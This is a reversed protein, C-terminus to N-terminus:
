KNFSLNKNKRMLYANYLNKRFLDNKPELELAKELHYIAKDLMNNQAYITGLNEHAGAYKNNIELAKSYEEIAKKYMGKEDYVVGLNFHAEVHKPDYKIIEKYKLLAEDLMKKRYYLNGLNFLAQINEPQHQLVYKFEKIAQDFKGLSYFIEGISFRIYIDKSNSELLINLHKNADEFLSKALLIKIINVRAKLYNPSLKLAIKYHYLAKDLDGKIQYYYALNFHAQVLGPKIDIAKKFNESAKEFQGFEALIIGSNVYPEPFKPNLIIAHEFAELAKDKLGKDYFAKGMNFFSYYDKPNIRIAKKYMDIADDLKGVISLSVGLEAYGEYNNPYTKIQRKLLEIAKEHNGYKEYSIALEILGRRWDPSKNVTDTWLTIDNKWVTNRKITLYSFFLGISIIVILTLSRYRPINLFKSIVISLCISIGFLPLYMYREAFTNEGVGPIYLAPSLPIIFLFLGLFFLKDKKYSLILLTIYMLFVFISILGKIEYIQRIPHLVHFVNLNIPVFTKLIYEMLLPFINIIYQYTNLEPHSQYASFGKLAYFRFSLYVILSAIFPIYDKLYQSINYKKTLLLDYLLIILIFTIAPEKCFLSITFCLISYYYKSKLGARFKIYFYFGLLYFFSYSLDPIASIWAVVETHLPHIAFIMATLFPIYLLQKENKPHSNIHKLIEYTALFVMISVGAHFLINVLHYGWPKLSFIQFILLYIIHMMPRYYNSVWDPSRFHWVDKLFMQPIFKFDRIWFNDKVQLNDDYVFDNFLTNFYLAFCSIFVVSILLKKTNIFKNNM